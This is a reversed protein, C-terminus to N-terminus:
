WPSFPRALRLNRPSQNKRFLVVASSLRSFYTRRLLFLLSWVDSPLSAELQHKCLKNKSRAQMETTLQQYCLTVAIGLLSLNIRALLGHMAKSAVQMGRPSCPSSLISSISVQRNVAHMITHKYEEEHLIYEREERCSSIVYLTLCQINTPFPPSM